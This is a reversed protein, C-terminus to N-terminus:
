SNLTPPKPWLQSKVLEFNSVTQSLLQDFSIDSSNFAPNKKQEVKGAAIAPGGASLLAM